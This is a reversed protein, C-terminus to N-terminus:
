EAAIATVNVGAFDAAPDVAPRRDSVPVVTRGTSEKLTFKLKFTDIDGKSAGAAKLKREFDTITIIKPPMLDAAELDFMMSAYGVIKQPDDIWKARGITDVIKLGPHTAGGMIQANVYDQVQGAWTALWAAGQAIQVLKDMDLKHPEPLLEPRLDEIPVPKVGAFNLGAKGYAQAMIAPCQGSRKGPCFTKDCWPGPTFVDKGSSTHEFAKAAAIAAEVDGLFELIEVLDFTWDKVVGMAANEGNPQVITLIIERPRWDPHTRLVLQAYLKLQANDDADVDQYGFKPDIIRLRRISPHWVVADPTSFILEGAIEGQVKQEVLLVADKSLATEHEVCNLYPIVDDCMADDVVLDPYDPHIATGIHNRPHGGQLLCVESLKHRVSGRKAYITEVDPITATLAVSGVCNLWRAAKSGGFRSHGNPNGM